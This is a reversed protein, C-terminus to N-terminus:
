AFKRAVRWRLGTKLSYGQIRYTCSKRRLGALTLRQQLLASPSHGLHPAAHAQSVVVEVDLASAATALEVLLAEAQARHGLLTPSTILAALLLRKTLLLALTAVGEQPTLALKHEM